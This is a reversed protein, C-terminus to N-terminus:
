FPCAEDLKVCDKETLVVTRDNAELQYKILTADDTVAIEIKTVRGMYKKDARTLMDGIKFKPSYM